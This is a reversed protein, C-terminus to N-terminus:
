GSGAQAQKFLPLLYKNGNLKLLNFGGAHEVDSTKQLTWRTTLVDWVTKKGFIFFFSSVKM